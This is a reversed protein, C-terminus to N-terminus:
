LDYRALDRELRDADDRSLPQEEVTPAGAAERRRRKWRPLLLAVAIAAALLIAAPVAWVAVASSGGTPEALVTPGYEAEFIDLIQQKTKGEAILRRIQAREQDARASEAINLPVNCTDCMLAAEVDYFEASAAHATAGPGAALLLLVLALARTV